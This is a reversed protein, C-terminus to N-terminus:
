QSSNTANTLNAADEVGAQTTQLASDAAGYDSAASKEFAPANAAGLMPLGDGGQPAFEPAGTEQPPLQQQLQGAGGLSQQPGFAQFVFALGILALGLVLWVQAPVGKPEVIRRGKQTLEYYKWKRTAGGESKAVLGVRELNDLHEKVTSAGLGTDGALESGTMRRKSLKKLIAVRSDAALAKFAERDLVIEDAM